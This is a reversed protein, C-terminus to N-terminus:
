GAWATSSWSSVLGPDQHLLASVPQFQCRANCYVATHGSAAVCSLWLFCACCSSALCCVCHRPPQQGPTWLSCPLSWDSSEPLVWAEWASQDRVWCSKGIGQRGCPSHTFGCPWLYWCDLPSSVLFCSLQRLWNLKDYMQTLLTDHATLVTSLINHACLVLHTLVMTHALHCNTYMAM